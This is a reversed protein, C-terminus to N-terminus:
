IRLGPGEAGARLKSSLDRYRSSELCKGLVEGVSTGHHEGRQMAHPPDVVAM